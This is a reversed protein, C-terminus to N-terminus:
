TKLVKLAGDAMYASIWFYHVTNIPIRLNLHYSTFLKSKIFVKSQHSVATKYGPSGALEILHIINVAGPIEAYIPSM